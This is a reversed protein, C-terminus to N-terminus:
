IETEKLYQAIKFAGALVNYHLPILTMLYSPTNPLV